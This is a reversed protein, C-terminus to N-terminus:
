DRGSHLDKARNCCLILIIEQNKMPKIVPQNAAIATFPIAAPLNVVRSWPLWDNMHLKLIAFLLLLMFCFFRSDLPCRVCTRRSFCSARLVLGM